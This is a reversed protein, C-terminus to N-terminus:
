MRVYYRHFGFTTKIIHMLFYKNVYFGYQFTVYVTLLLMFTHESKSLKNLCMTDSSDMFETKNNNKYLKSAPNHARGQWHMPSLLYYFTATKVPMLLFHYIQQTISVPNLFHTNMINKLFLMLFSV